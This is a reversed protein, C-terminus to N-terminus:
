FNLFIFFIYWAGGDFSVSYECNKPLSYDFTNQGCMWDDIISYSTCYVLANNLYFNNGTCSSVATLDGEGTLTKNKIIDDDCEPNHASRRWCFSMKFEMLMNAGEDKKPKTSIQGGLFFTM